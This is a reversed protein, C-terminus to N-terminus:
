ELNRLWAQPHQRFLDGAQWPVVRKWRSCTSRWGPVLLRTRRAFVPLLPFGGGAEQGGVGGGLVPNRGGGVLTVPRWVGKTLVQFCGLSGLIFNRELGSDLLFWFHPSFVLVCPVM